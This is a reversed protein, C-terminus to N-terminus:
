FRYCELYLGYDCFLEGNIRVASNHQEVSIRVTFFTVFIDSSSVLLTVSSSLLIFIAYLLEVLKIEPMVLCMVVIKQIFFRAPCIKLM